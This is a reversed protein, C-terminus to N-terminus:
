YGGYPNTRSGGMQSLGYLQLGTNILGQNAKADVGAKNLAMQQQAQNAAQMNGAAGLDYASSLGAQGGAIGMGQNFMQSLRGMHEGSAGGALSDLQGMRQAVLNAMLDSEGQRAAGSNFAGAAGYRSGLTEMGRKSAYEFAPDTGAARQNFWNELIGPGSESGTPSASAGTASDAGAPTGYAQGGKLGPDTGGSQAAPGKGMWANAKAGAAGRWGPGTGSGFRPAAQAPKWPNNPDVMSNWGPM